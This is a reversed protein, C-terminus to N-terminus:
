VQIMRRHRQPLPVRPHRRQAVRPQMAPLLVGERQRGPQIRLVDALAKRLEGGQRGPQNARLEPLREPVDGQQEAVPIPRPELRPRGDLDEVDQQGTETVAVARGHRLHDRREDLRSVDALM